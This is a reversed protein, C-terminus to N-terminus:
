LIPREVEIVIDNPNQEGPWPYALLDIFRRNLRIRIMGDLSLDLDLLKASNSAQSIDALLAQNPGSDVRAILSPLEIQNYQSGLIYSIQGGSWTLTIPNVLSIQSLSETRYPATVLTQALSFNGSLFIDFRNLLPALANSSINGRARLHATTRRLELTGQVDLDANNLAWTFTPQLGFLETSQSHTLQQLRWSIKATPGNSIILTTQGNWITGGFRIADLGPTQNVFYKALSAPLFLLSVAITVFLILTITATKKM